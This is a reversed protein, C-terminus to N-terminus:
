AAAGVTVALYGPIVVTVDGDAFVPELTARCWDGAEDATSLGSAVSSDVNVESLVYRLYADLNMPLHTEVDQYGVLRLGYDALPLTRPDLPRWGPPWPYRREFAAFWRALADGTASSRGNSFDYLLFTGGPALVRAVEALSSPLHTYNLSGAASVLDFSGAAFPLCEASGVVFEADPAVSRHHALMAPVPEVGVVREAVPVLAATSAGAGCGVDLARRARGALGAARLIREHVPPRDFAYGAALRESDYVSAM